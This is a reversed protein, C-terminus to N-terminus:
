YYFSFKNEMAMDKINKFFFLHVKQKAYAENNSNCSKDETLSSKINSKFM